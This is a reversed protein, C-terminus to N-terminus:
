RARLYYVNHAPNLFANATYQRWDRLAYNSMILRFALRKNALDHEQFITHPQTMFVKIASRNFFYSPVKIVTPIAPETATPLLVKALKNALCNSTVVAIILVSSKKIDLANNVSFSM